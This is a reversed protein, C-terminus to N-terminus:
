RIGGQCYHGPECRTQSHRTLMSGNLSADAPASWPMQAQTIGQCIGTTSNFYLMAYGRAGGAVRRHTLLPMHVADHNNQMARRIVAITHKTYVQM